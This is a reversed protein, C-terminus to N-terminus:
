VVFGLLAFGLNLIHYVKLYIVGDIQIEVNDLTVAIQDPVNFVEERLSHVFAIRDVFPILFHIGSRLTTHYKGLREIVFAMREPM